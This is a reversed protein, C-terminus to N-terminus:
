KFGREARRQFSFLFLFRNRNERFNDFPSQFLSGKRGRRMHLYFLLLFVFRTVLTLHFRLLQTPFPTPAAIVLGAEEWGGGGGRGLWWWWGRRIIKLPSAVDYKKRRSAVVCLFFCFGNCQYWSYHSIDRYSAAYAALFVASLHYFQDLRARSFLAFVQARAYAKIVVVVLLNQCSEPTRPCPSLILVGETFLKISSLTCPDM